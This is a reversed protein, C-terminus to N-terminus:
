ENSQVPPEHSPSEMTGPQHWHMLLQVRGKEESFSVFATYKKAFLSLSVMGTGHGAARTRPLGDGGLQLPQASSNELRLFLQNGKNMLSLRISQEAPPLKRTATIANELLNALLIALDTEEMALQEPLAIGYEIPIGLDKARSIYVSLSANIIPNQCFSHLATHELQNDFTQLLQDAEALKNEALLARLLRNHHRMDHRLVSFETQSNKLLLTYGQLSQLQNRMLLSNERAAKLRAGEERELSVYRAIFLFTLFLFFRSNLADWSHFKDDLIVFVYSLSIVFPLFAIYYGYTRQNILQPSPMMRLFLYRLLPFFLLACVLYFAAQLTIAQVPDEPRLPASLMNSLAHLCYFYMSQMGLIFIHYILRQRVIAYTLLFFPLWSITYVAKYSLVSIGHYHFHMTYLLLAPICWLLCSIILQQKKKKPLDHSFPLYRMYANYLQILLLEISILLADHM